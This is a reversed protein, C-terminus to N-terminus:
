KLSYRGQRLSSWTKRARSTTGPLPGMGLTVPPSSLLGFDQHLCGMQPLLGSVFGPGGPQPNQTLGTGEGHFFSKSFFRLLPFNSSQNIICVFAHLVSYLSYSLWWFRSHLSATTDPYFALALLVSLHFVLIFVLLVLFFITHFQRLLFVSNSM